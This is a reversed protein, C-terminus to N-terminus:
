TYLTQIALPFYGPLWVPNVCQRRIRKIPLSYRRNLERQEPSPFVPIRHRM